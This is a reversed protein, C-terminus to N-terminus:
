FSKLIKKLENMNSQISAITSDIESIGTGKNQTPLLNQTLQELNWKKTLACALQIVEMRDFPKKLIFFNDKSGLKKRIDEWSYKAYATCIVIQIKPDMEWIKIITEIGDLGPPMLVDVFALAYPKNMVLSHQILDLGRESQFASDINFPPLQSETNESEEFLLSKVKQLQETSPNQKPTLVDIFDQHISELDDIVLIRYNEM